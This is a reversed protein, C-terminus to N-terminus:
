VTCTFCGDFIEKTNEPKNEFIGFVASGSGSMAAYIAGIDYLKQKIDAIQPYLEFISKEFDNHLERRWTEIPQRTVIDRCCKQPKTPRILSFAERTSVAIDPKVITIRYPSLDIDVPSLIDGVGEAYAPRSEIFFSCDAGLEAAYRRMTTSTMGLEFMDNLLMITYACDASGGGMGAQMPINKHLTIDVPSLKYDKAIRRYAKVVLNDADSGLVPNGAVTLCCTGAVTDTTDRCNIEISDHIAVPYFVTELNHYGDPRLGVINLGLNIKACPYTIM